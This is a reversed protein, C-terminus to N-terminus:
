TMTVNQIYTGQGSSTASLTGSLTSGSLTLTGTVSWTSGGVVYAGNFAGASSLTGTVTGSGMAGDKITGGSITGSNSVTFAITGSDSQSPITYTGSWSNALADNTNWTYGPLHLLNGTTTSNKVTPDMVINTSSSTSLGGVVMGGRSISLGSGSSNLTGTVFWYGILAPGSTTLNGNVIFVATSSGNGYSMAGNVTVNGNLFATGTGTYTGSVNVGGNSYYYVPYPDGGTVTPFTIGTLNNSSSVVSAVTQYNSATVTPYTIASGSANTAGTLTVTSKTITGTSYISGNVVNSGASGSGTISINGNAFIDGNASSGGTNFLYNSSTFAANVFLAFDFPTNPVVKCLVTSERYTRQDPATLTSTMLISNALNTSNDVTTLTGTVGNLSFARSDPLILSGKQELDDIQSTAAEWTRQALVGDEYRVEQRVDSMGLEAALIVVGAIALVMILVFIIASGRQKSYERRNQEL